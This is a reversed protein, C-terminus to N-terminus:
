NNLKICNVGFRLCLAIKTLWLLFDFIIGCYRELLARSVYHTVHFSELRLLKLKPSFLSFFSTEHFSPFRSFAKALTSMGFSPNDHPIILYRGKFYASLIFNESNELM